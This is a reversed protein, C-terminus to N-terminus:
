NLGIARGFWQQLYQNLGRKGSLGHESVINRVPRRRILLDECILDYIDSQAASLVYVTALAYDCQHWQKYSAVFPHIVSQLQMLDITDSHSCLSQALQYFKNPKNTYVVQLQILQKLQEDFQHRSDLTKGIIINATATASNPQTGYRWINFGLAQWFALTDAAYAFSSTIHSVQNAHATQILQQILQTGIGQRQYAPLVAIRNVRWQRQKLLEPAAYTMALQQSVLHGQIRRQGHTIAIQLADNIGGLYEDFFAVAGVCQGDKVVILCDLYPDDWLRQLDDPRTQYHAQRLLRYVHEIVHMRQTTSAIRSLLHIGDETIRTYSTERNLLSEIPCPTAFRVPTTLTYRKANSLQHMFKRAFGSASGEYGHTTTALICHKSVTLLKKLVDLPFSAAEDIIVVDWQEQCAPHDPPLLAIVGHQSHLRHQAIDGKSLEISENSSATIHALRQCLVDQHKQAGAILLVRPQHQFLQAAIEALLYSKGRGRLATILAVSETSNSIRNCIDTVIKLQEQSAKARLPTLDSLPHDALQNVAGNISGLGIHQLHRWLQSSSAPQSGYQDCSIGIGTMVTESHYLLLSGGHTVCGALAHLSQLRFGQHLDIIVCAFELGLAHQYQAQTLHTDIHINNAGCSAALSADDSLLLTKPQPHQRYIWQHYHDVIEVLKTTSFIQRTM